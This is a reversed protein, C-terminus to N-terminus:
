TPFQRKKGAFGYQHVSRQLRTAPPTAVVLLRGDYDALVCSQSAAVEQPPSMPNSAVSDLSYMRVALNM